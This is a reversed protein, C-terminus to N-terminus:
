QTMYAAFFHAADNFTDVGSTGKRKLRLTITDLAQFAGAPIVWQITQVDTNNGPSFAVTVDSTFGPTRQHQWALAMDIVGAGATEKAMSVYLTMPMNGDFDPPLLVDKFISSDVGTKFEAVEVSNVIRRVARDGVPESLDIELNWASIDQRFRRTLYAIHQNLFEFVGEVTTENNLGPKPETGILAAGESGDTTDALVTQTYYRADTFTTDLEVDNPNVIIGTGQGVNLGTFLTGYLGDGALVGSSLGLQNDVYFKTAADQPDNPDDLNVIKLGGMDIQGTMTGGALELFDTDDRLAM